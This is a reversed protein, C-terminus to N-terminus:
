DCSTDSPNGMSPVTYTARSNGGQHSKACQSIRSGDIKPVRLFRACKGVAGLSAERLPWENLPTVDPHRRSGRESEAVCKPRAAVPM